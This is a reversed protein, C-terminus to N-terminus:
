RESMSKMTVAFLMRFSWMRERQWVQVIRTGEDGCGDERSAEKLASVM